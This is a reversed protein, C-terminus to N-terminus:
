RSPGTAAQQKSLIDQLRTRNYRQVIICPANFTIAYAIMILGVWPLNWLFFLASPLLAVWHCLEARCSELVWTQLYETDRAELRRMSFGGRFWAGGSPLRTKWSRVRLTRQYISGGDEWSRTRLLWSRPNLLRRPWRTALYAIGMQIAAWAVCDLLIVWLTPLRIIMAVSDEKAFHHHHPGAM